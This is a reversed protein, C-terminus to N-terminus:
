DRFTHIQMLQQLKLRSVGHVWFLFTNTQVGAATTTNLIYMQRGECQTTPDVYYIGVVQRFFPARNPDPEALSINLSKCDFPPAIISQFVLPLM